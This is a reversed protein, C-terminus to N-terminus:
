SQLSCSGEKIGWFIRYSRMPCRSSATELFFVIIHPMMMRDANSMFAITSVKKKKSKKPEPVEPGKGVVGDINSSAGTVTLRRRMRQFQKGLIGQGKGESSEKGEESM